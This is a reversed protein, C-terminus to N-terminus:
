ESTITADDLLNHRKLTKRVALKVDGMAPRAM